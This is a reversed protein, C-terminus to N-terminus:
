RHFRTGEWREVTRALIKLLVLLAILAAVALLLRAGTFHGAFLQNGTEWMYAVLPIGALVFLAIPLILRGASIPPKHPARPDAHPSEPPGVM